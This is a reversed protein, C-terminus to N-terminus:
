GRYRLNTTDLRVDEETEGQVLQADRSGQVLEIDAQEGGLAVVHEELNVKKKRSQESKKSPKELGEIHIKPTRAM